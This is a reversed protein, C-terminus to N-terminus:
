RLYPLTESESKNFPATCNVDILAASSRRLENHIETM